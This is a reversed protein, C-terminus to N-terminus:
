SVTELAPTPDNTKRVRAVPKSVRVLGQEIADTMELALQNVYPEILMGAPYVPLTNMDVGGEAINEWGVDANSLESYNRVPCFHTIRGPYSRPRYEAAIRDNNAWLASLSRDSTPSGNVKHAKPMVTDNWVAKRRRVESMKGRFFLRKEGGRLRWLNRVHFDVKQLNYLCRGFLSTRKMNAWNHADLMGLFAVHEGQEFLQAAVELAITGGLCYGGLLYPGSPQMKQIEQRYATAMEEVSTHLTQEGDLGQAQVGYVPQQDSLHRALDNYILVNGGAAHILFLPPKSGGARIPVLCDWSPQWQGSRLIDALGAVTRTQLLTALPLRKGYTEEIRVMLQVGLLSHGGLEFFDDSVGVPRVDLLDEWLRSLHLEIQDIPAQYSEEHTFM